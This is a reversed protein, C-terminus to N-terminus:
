LSLLTFDAIAQKVFPDPEPRYTKSWTGISESSVNGSERHMQKCLEICLAELDQPVKAPATSDYYGGTFTVRYNKTGTSFTGALLTVKGNKYDVIYDRGELLDTASWTDGEGDAGAQRDTLVALEFDLAATVSPRVVPVPLYLVGRGRDDVQRCDGDFYLYDESIVNTGAFATANGYNRAKLKRNTQTELWSSIRNIVNTLRDDQSTDATAVELQEKLNAVTTLAANSLTPM